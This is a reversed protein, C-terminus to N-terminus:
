QMRRALSLVRASAQSLEEVETWQNSSNERQFTYAILEHDGEFADIIKDIAEKQGGSNPKADKLDKAAEALVEAAEHEKQDKLLPVLADIASILDSCSDQPKRRIVTMFHGSRASTTTEVPPLMSFAAPFILKPDSEM